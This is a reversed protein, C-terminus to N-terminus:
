YLSVTQIILSSIHTCLYVSNKFTDFLIEMKLL